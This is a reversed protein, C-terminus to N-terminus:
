KTGKNPDWQNFVSTSCVFALSHQSLPSSLPSILSQDLIIICSVSFIYSCPTVPISLLCWLLAKLNFLSLIFSFLHRIYIFLYIRWEMRGKDKLHLLFLFTLLSKTSVMVRFDSKTGRHICYQEERVTGNLALIFNFCHELHLVCGTTLPFTSVQSGWCAARLFFQLLAEEPLLQGDEARSGRLAPSGALGAM